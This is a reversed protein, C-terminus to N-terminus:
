SCLSAGRINTDPEISSNMFPSIVTKPCSPDARLQRNANKLTTQITNVGIPRYINILHTNKVSTSEYPDDFWDKNKEKPLLAEANFKDVDRMKRQKGPIYNAYPIDVAGTGPNNKDFGIKQDLPHGSEFFKDIDSAKGGGRKGDVYSSSVFKGDRSSNRTRFKKIVNANGEPMEEMTKSLNMESMRAMEESDPRSRPDPMSRQKSKNMSDNESINKSSNSTGMTALTSLSGQNKTVESDEDNNRHKILFFM